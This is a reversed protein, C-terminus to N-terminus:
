IGKLYILVTCSLLFIIEFLSPLGNFIKSLSSYIYKALLFNSVPFDAFIM